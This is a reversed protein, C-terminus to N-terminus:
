AAREALARLEARAESLERFADSALASASPDRSLAARAAASFRLKAAEMRERAAKLAEPTM